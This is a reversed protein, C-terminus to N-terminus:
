LDEEEERDQIPTYETGPPMRLMQTTPPYLDMSTETTEMAGIVRGAVATVGMVRVADRDPAFGVVAAARSPDPEVGDHV